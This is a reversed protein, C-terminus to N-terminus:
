VSPPQVTSPYVLVQMYTQGIDNGRWAFGFDTGPCERVAGWLVVDRASTIPGWMHPVVNFVHDSDWPRGWSDRRDWNVTPGSPSDLTITLDVSTNYSLYLYARATPYIMCPTGPYPITIRCIEGVSGVGKIWTQDGPAPTVSYSLCNHVGRWGSTTPDSGSGYFVQHQFGNNHCWRQDGPYAGAEVFAASGVAADAGYLARMGGRTVLGPGRTDTINASTLSGVGAGVYVQALPIWGNVPTPLPAVPTGTSPDGQWVEVTFQRTGSPSAIASNLDDYVRAVVLDVRNTSIGSGTLTLTKRSDLACMYAGQGPTNIVCHGMEVTVSMGTGPQVRLAMHSSGGVGGTDGNAFVGSRYDVYSLNPTPMLLSDLAMRADVLGIRSQVAWPQYTSPVVTGQSVM